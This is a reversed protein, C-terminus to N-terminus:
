FICVGEVGADLIETVHHIWRETSMSPPRHIGEHHQCTSENGALTAVNNRTWDRAIRTSVSYNMPWIYDVWGKRVWTEWDQGIDMLGGPFYHFVSASLEKGHDSTLKRIRRVFRNIVECRWNIWADMDQAESPNWQFFGLNHLDGGTQNRYDERCYDCYCFGDIFRIYDLSVGAIPYAMLEEYLSAEYDQVEPRNPCALRHAPEGAEREPGAVALYEPHAEILASKEGEPFVCVWAHIALGQKEAEEACVALPDWDRFSPRVNGVSSAYDATGDTQYICPVLMDFGADALRKVDQRVADETDALKHLWTGKWVSSM